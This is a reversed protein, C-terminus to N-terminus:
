SKRQLLNKCPEELADVLEELHLIIEEWGYSHFEEYCFNEIPNRLQEPLKNLLETCKFHYEDQTM